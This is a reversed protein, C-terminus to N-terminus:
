VVKVLSVHIWGQEPNLPNEVKYYQRNSMFDWVVNNLDVNLTDGAKVEKIVFEAEDPETPDKIVSAQHCNYVIVKTWAM